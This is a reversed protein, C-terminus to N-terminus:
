SVFGERTRIHISDGARCLSYTDYHLIECSSSFSRAKKWETYSRSAAESPPVLEERRFPEKQLTQIRQEQPLATKATSTKEEKM